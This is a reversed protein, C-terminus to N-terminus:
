LIPISYNKFNLTRYYHIRNFYEPSKIFNNMFSSLEDSSGCDVIIWEVNENIRIKELNHYFTERLQHFRNKIQSCYSIIM